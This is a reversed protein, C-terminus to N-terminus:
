QSAPPALSKLYVSALRAASSGSFNELVQNFKDVALSEKGQRDYVLGLKYTADARKSSSPHEELLRVFAQEAAVLDKKGGRALYVEGLWYQANDKYSGAPYRAMYDQLSDIAAPFQRGRVLQLAKRYVAEGDDDSQADRADRSSSPPATKAPATKAPATNRGSASTSATLSGLRSDLDLYRSRNDKQMREIVAGQEEVLGRLMMVEERLTEVDLWATSSPSQSSSRSLKASPRPTSRSALPPKSTAPSPISDTAQAARAGTVPVDRVPVTQPNSFACGQAFLVLGLYAYKLPM